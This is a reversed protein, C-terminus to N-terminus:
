DGLKCKIYNEDGIKLWDDLQVFRDTSQIGDVVDDFSYKDIESLTDSFNFNESLENDYLPEKTYFM